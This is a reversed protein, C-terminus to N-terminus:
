RSARDFVYQLQHYHRYRIARRGGRVEGDNLAAGRSALCLRRDRRDRRLGRSRHVARQSIRVHAARGRDRRRARRRRLDRSVRIRVLTRADRAALARRGRGAPAAPDYLPRNRALALRRRVVGDDRDRARVSAALLSLVGFALVLARETAMRDALQGGLYQGFVGVVLIAVYGYRALDFEEAYPSSPAVLEVRVLTALYDSLLDPLFTLFARYYLGSAMVVLLVLGFALTALTQTDDVTTAITIRGKTDDTESRGATNSPSEDGGDTTATAGADAPSTEVLSGLALVALAPAALAATVVRWDFRLLLLATALPGLAIGLNGGIGHYGLALGTRDVRRSLLSLGAPHYVSATVGWLAIALGLTPISNSLGLLFYSGSMGALCALILPKSGYRDVLVGGPLAGAGFLGYGVTVLLGLTAATTSFEALWVTMLIPISLEYTHVLAHSGATFLVIRRDSSDM